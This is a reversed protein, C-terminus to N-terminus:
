LPVKGFPSFEEIWGKRWEAVVFGDSLFIERKTPVVGQCIAVFSHVFFIGDVDGFSHLGDIGRIYPRIAIRGRGVLVIRGRRVLVIRGRGM